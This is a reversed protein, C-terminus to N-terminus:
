SLPKDHEYDSEPYPDLSPHQSYQKNRFPLSPRRQFPRDTWIAYTGSSILRFIHSSPRYVYARWNRKIVGVVRGTPQVERPKKKTEDDVDMTEKQADKTEKDVVGAGEDDEADDDRLAV